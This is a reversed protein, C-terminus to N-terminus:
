LDHLQAEADKYNAAVDKCETEITKIADDLATQVGAVQASYATYLDTYEKQAAKAESVLAALTESITDFESTIGIEDALMGAAKAEAIAAAMDDLTTKVTALTEAYMPAVSSCEEEITAKAADYAAYLQTMTSEYEAYLRESNIKKQAITAETIIENLKDSIEKMQSAFGTEDAYYGAAKAEMIAATLDDLTTKLVAMDYGYQGVVDPCNTTLEANVEAYLNYLEKMQAEYEAYLKDSNVKKQAKTADIIIQEIQDKLSALESAIGTEDALYGAAKAEAIAAAMDDLTTKATALVEEYDAAVDPCTQPLEASVEEYLAYLEDMTAEYEAYLKDSNLKKQAKTADTILTDLMDKVAAFEEEGFALQSAPTGAAKAEAITASFSEINAGIEALQAAYQEAVDPCNAALEASVEEYLAALEAVQAEYAAYTFDSQAAKAKALVEELQQDVAEFEEMGFQLEEAYKGAAKQEAIITKFSEINAAIAALEEAYQEAM